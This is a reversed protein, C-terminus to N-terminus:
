FFFFFFDFLLQFLCSLKGLEWFDSSWFAAAADGTSLRFTTPESPKWHSFWFSTNPMLSFHRKSKKRKTKNKTQTM